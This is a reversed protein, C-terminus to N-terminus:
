AKQTAAIGHSGEFPVGEEEAASSQMPQDIDHIHYEAGCLLMM